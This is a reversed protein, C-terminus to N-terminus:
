EEGEEAGAKTPSTQVVTMQFNSAQAGASTNEKIGKLNPEKFWESGELNRMESSIRNNSEATGEVALTHADLKMSTFYVGKALTRVLEDFVRVIVPRNGQLEQIVRMRALLQERKQRLDRIEAIQQDLVAIKDKIFQNRANQHDVSNDLYWGAAIVILVGFLFSGGLRILFENKRREREWERWPLLNIRAM